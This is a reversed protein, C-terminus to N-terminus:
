RGNPGVPPSNMGLLLLPRKVYREEDGFDDTMAPTTSNASLSFHWFRLLIEADSQGKSLPRQSPFAITVTLIKLTERRGSFIEMTGDKVIEATIMNNDWLM